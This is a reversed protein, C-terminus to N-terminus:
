HKKVKPTKTAFSIAYRALAYVAYAAAATVALLFALVDLLLLQYWSLQSAASQLHPAGNHRLLYEIWWVARPLSEAQHERYVASLKKMNERYSKDELVTKIAKLATDKTVHRFQLEYGIGAAVMKAVNHHQDGHFPIGILPVGHYSAENFSQLGGQTIFLRVKPHALVSQQPLWKSTKVNAPLVTADDKEWKWLVRQPLESFADLFAQRKEPPMTSGIVNTGLSFYIVGEKAGDLWEQIDKPLPELEPKVHLGTLEIFNPLNPRPYNEIFHNSLIMFSFNRELEYISPVEPGFYQKQLKDHRPLVVYFWVYNLYLWFYTSYLRQWFTMHDSYPLVWSPLYAPNDPSGHSWHTYPYAGLSVFGVLPPSGALHQLAYFCPTLLREVIVLDYRQKNSKLFKLMEPSKLGDECIPGAMDEMGWLMEVPDWAHKAMEMWDFTKRLYRYAPSIDIETYNAINKKIPDTTIFTVEHGRKVLELVIMRLPYQHSVSPFPVAALIRAGDACGGALLAPLLVLLLLRASGM